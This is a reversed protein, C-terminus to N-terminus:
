KYLLFLIVTPQTLRMLYQKTGFQMFEDRFGQALSQTGKRWGRRSEANLLAISKLLATSVIDVDIELQHPQQIPSIIALLFSM